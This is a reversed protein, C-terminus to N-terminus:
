ALMHERVWNITESRLRHNAQMDVLEGLTKKIGKPIAAVNQLIGVLHKARKMDGYEYGYIELKGMKEAAAEWSQYKPNQAIKGENLAQIYAAVANKQHEPPESGSLAEHQHVQWESGLSDTIEFCSLSNGNKDRVSFCQTDGKICATAYNDICLDLVNHEHDLQERTKLPVITLDGLEPLIKSDAGPYRTEWEHVMKVGHSAANATDYERMQRTVHTWNRHFATNFEALEVATINATFAHTLISPKVPKRAKSLNEFIVNTVHGAVWNLTDGINRAAANNFEKELKIYDNPRITSLVASRAAIQSKRLVANIEDAYHYKSRLSRDLADFMDCFILVQNKSQPFANIDVHEASRNLIRVTNLSLINSKAIRRVHPLGLKELGRDKFYAEMADFLKEGGDISAYLKKRAAEDREEQEHLVAAYPFQRAMTNWKARHPLGNFVEAYFRDEYEQDDALLPFIKLAQLRRTVGNEDLGNLDHIFNYDVMRPKIKYTGAALVQEVSQDSLLPAAQKIFAREDNEDKFLERPISPHM